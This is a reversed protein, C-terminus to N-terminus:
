LRSLARRRTKRPQVPRQRTKQSQVCRIQCCVLIEEALRKCDAEGRSDYYDIRDEMETQVLFLIDESLKHKRVIELLLLLGDAGEERSFEERFFYEWEKVAKKNWLAALRHLREQLLRRHEAKEEAWSSMEEQFITGYAADEIVQADQWHEEERCGAQEREQPAANEQRPM